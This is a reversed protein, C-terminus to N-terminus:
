NQLNKFKTKTQFHIIEGDQEPRWFSRLDHPKISSPALVKTKTVEKVTLRGAHFLQIWVKANQNHIEDVLPKWNLSHEKSYFQAGNLYGMADNNNIASSEVIILGVDNKARKTIILLKKQPIGM